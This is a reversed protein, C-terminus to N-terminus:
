PEDSVEIGGFELCQGIIGDLNETLSQADDSALFGQSLRDVLAPNSLERGREALDGPAESSGITSLIMAFGLGNMDGTAYGGGSIAGSIETEYNQKVYAALACVEGETRPIDTPKLNPRVSMDHAASAESNPKELGGAAAAPSGADGRSNSRSLVLTMVIAAAAVAFGVMLWTLTRKGSSSSGVVPKGAPAPPSSRKLGPTQPEGYTWNDGDWYRMGENPLYYWGPRRGDM